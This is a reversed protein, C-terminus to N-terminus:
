PIIIPPIGSCGSGRRWIPRHDLLGPRRCDQLRRAPVPFLMEQRLPHSDLRIESSDTGGDVGGCVSRSLFRRKKAAAYTACARLGHPIPFKGM